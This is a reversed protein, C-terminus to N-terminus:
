STTSREMLAEGEVTNEEKLESSRQVAHCPLEAVISAHGPPVNRMIMGPPSIALPCNRSTTGFRRMTKVHPQSPSLWGTGGPDEM